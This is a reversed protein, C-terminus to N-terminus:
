IVEAWDYPVILAESYGFPMALISIELDVNLSGKHEYFLHKTVKGIRGRYIGRKVQVRIGLPFHIKM